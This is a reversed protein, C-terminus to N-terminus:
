IHHRVVALGILVLKVKKWLQLCVSHILSFHPSPFTFHYRYYNEETEDFRRRLLDGVEEALGEMDKKIQFHIEDENDGCIASYPEDMSINEINNLEPQIYQTLFKTINTLFLYRLSIIVYLWHITSTTSSTALYELNEREHAM